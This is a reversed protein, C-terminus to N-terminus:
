TSPAVFDGGAGDKSRVGDWEPTGACRRCRFAVARILWGGARAWEEGVGTEIGAARAGGQTLRGFVLRLAFSSSREERLPASTAFILEQPIEKAKEVIKM